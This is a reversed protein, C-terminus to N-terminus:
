EVVVGQWSKDCCKIVPNIFTIKEAQVEIVIKQSIFPKHLLVMYYIGPKLAVAFEGNKDSEIVTEAYNKGKKRRTKASLRFVCRPELFL